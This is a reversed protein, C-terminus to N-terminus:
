SFISLVELVAISKDEQGVHLKCYDINNDKLWAITDDKFYEYERKYDEKVEGIIKAPVGVCIKGDPIKQNQ